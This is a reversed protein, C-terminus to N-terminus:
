RKAAIIVAFFVLGGLLGHFGRDNAFVDAVSSIQGFMVDFM